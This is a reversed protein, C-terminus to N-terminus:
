MRRYLAKVNAVYAKTDEYMGRSTVSGYGQYYSAIAIDRSHTMRTLAKIIVVGATVNDPAKRLDLRRGVMDSAWRGADPIVQMIGHANASSHANQNWGSEQWAIALALKPDVGYRRATTIILAKAQERSPVGGVRPKNTGRTTTASLPVRLRQGVLITTAQLRNAKVLGSVTTHHRHAVGFLTDGRRVTYWGMTRAPKAAAPRGTSPKATAPKASNHATVPVRLVQGIRIMSSPLANLNRLARPTTEFRVALHSLTDGPRVRYRTTRAERRDKAPRAAARQPSTRAPTTRPLWLRQGPYIVRAAHDLRNRHAIVAITTRHKLALGHVTEGSSVVHVQWGYPAPNSASVAAPHSVLAPTTCGPVVAPPTAGIM